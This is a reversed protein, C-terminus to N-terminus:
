RPALHEELFKRIREPRDGASFEPGGHGAGELIEIEVPVGVATYMDALLQSQRAHVLHDKTGHMIFIPADEKSVWTVPSASRALDKKEELTGGLLQQIASGEGQRQIMPEKSVPKWGLFDTPGYFNVGCSVASSQDLHEGVDFERTDGTTTMLATLHGGASDGAVAIRKPDYGHEAAHARLWRVAAKCDEIQAPFKAEQSFRYEVSAVAYGGELFNLVPVGSKSGARWAGGHIYVLLPGKPAPPVYLDLKQKAHGNTVYAVDKLVKTGEPLAQVSVTLLATFVAVLSVTFHSAKM